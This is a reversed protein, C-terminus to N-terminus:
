RLAARGGRGEVVLRCVPGGCSCAYPTGIVAGLDSLREEPSRGVHCGLRRKSHPELAGTM